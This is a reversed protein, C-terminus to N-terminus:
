NFNKQSFQKKLKKKNECKIESQFSRNKPNLNLNLSKGRRCRNLSGSFDLNKVKAEAQEWITLIKKDLFSFSQLFTKFFPNIACDITSTIARVKGSSVYQYNARFPQGLLSRFCSNFIRFSGFVRFNSLLCM